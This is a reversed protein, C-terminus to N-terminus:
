SFHSCPTPSFSPMLLRIGKYDDLIFEGLHAQGKSTYVSGRTRPFADSSISSSSTIVAGGRLADTVGCNGPGCLATGACKVSVSDRAPHTGGDDRSQLHSRRPM